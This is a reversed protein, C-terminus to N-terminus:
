NFSAISYRGRCNQVLIFLCEGRFFIDNEEDYNCRIVVIGVLSFYIANKENAIKRNSQSFNLDRLWQPNNIKPRDHKKQPHRRKETRGFIQMHKLPLTNWNSSCIHNARFHLSNPCITKTQMKTIEGSFRKIHIKFTNRYKIM